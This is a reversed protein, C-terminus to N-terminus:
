IICRPFSIFTDSCDLDHGIFAKFPKIDRRAYNRVFLGKGRCLRLFEAEPVRGVFNMSCGSSRNAQDSLTVVGFTVVMGNCRNRAAGMRGVVSTTEESVSARWKARM